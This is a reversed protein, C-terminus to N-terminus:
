DGGQAASLAPSPAPQPAGAELREFAERFVELPQAGVIRADGVLFTPVGEVGAILAERFGALVQREFRPHGLAEEFDAVPLGSKAALKVLVQPSGIDKGQQFYARFLRDHFAAFRGHTRAFEAGLHALHSNIVKPPRRMVLESANALQQANGWLFVAREGFLEELTCGDRSIEPHLELGRWEVKIAFEKALTELRAKGIFCFPCSYDSYVKVSLAM